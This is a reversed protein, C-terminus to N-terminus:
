CARPRSRASGPPRSTSRRRGGERQQDHDHRGRRRDHRRRLQRDMGARRLDPGRLGQGPVRLGADQRQRRRARRGPDGQRDRDAGALDDAAAQRVERAPGQPLLAPRRRHVVADGGARRRGHQERRDGPFHQSSRTRPRHARGPRHLPQGPHRALDRRDPVRRHRGLQGGPDASLAGPARDGLEADLHRQGPQRDARGLGNAGQQCLELELGVAGCSISITAAQAGLAGGVVTAAVAVSSLLSRM